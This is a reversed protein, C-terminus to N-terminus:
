NIVQIKTMSRLNYFCHYLQFETWLYNMRLKLNKECKATSFELAVITFLSLFIDLNHM